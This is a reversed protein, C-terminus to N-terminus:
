SNNFNNVQCRIGLPFGIVHSLVIDAYDEFNSFGHDGGSVILRKSGEYHKVAVRWDLLEDDTAHMLFLKKPNRLAPTYMAELQELHQSTFEYQEQTYLNKQSGVYNTLGTHPTIAPNILISRCGLQESLHTAYFGGLSSGVLVVDNIPCTKIKNSLVALAEKPWHPLNPCWFDVKSDQEQILKALLCAKYSSSSSNFGHAYIILKM